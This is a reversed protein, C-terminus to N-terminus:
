GGPKVAVGATAESVELACLDNLRNAFATSFHAPIHQVVCIGPLDPSLQTLIEKLAETGGTSAGILIVQRPSYHRRIPTGTTTPSPNAKFSPERTPSAAAIRIRAGAAAKIKEALRSGNEHASRAGSPKDLVDVAGAQLAELAKLSGQQTLSSMVIVPMPRHKMLLKLFTIGDMRPMEIDLTIVDPDLELIKDRALYPDAATGIVQIELDGALSDTVIKRVMASDDVILVRILRSRM